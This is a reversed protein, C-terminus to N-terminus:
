SNITSVTTNYYNTDLAGGSNGGSTRNVPDDYTYANTIGSTGSSIDWTGSTEHIIEWVVLQYFYADADNIIDGNIDYITSYVHSFFSNLADKQIQTYLTMSPSNLAMADYEQGILPNNFEPTTPMYYDICFVRFNQGTDDNFVKITESNHYGNGSPSDNIVQFFHENYRRSSNDCYLTDSYVNSVLSIVMGILSVVVFSRFKTNM